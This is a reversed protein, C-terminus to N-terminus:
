NIMGFKKKLGHMIVNWAFGNLNNFLKYAQALNDKLMKLRNKINDHM